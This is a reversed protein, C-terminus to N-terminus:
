TGANPQTPDAQIGGLHKCFSRCAAEPVFNDLFSSHCGIVKDYDTNEGDLPVKITGGCYDAGHYSKSVRPPLLHGSEEQNRDAVCHTSLQTCLIHPSSNSEEIGELIDTRPTQRNSSISFLVIQPKVWDLLDRAFNKPDGTEPNGGHHPFVLIDAELSLGAEHIEELGRYGIDGPFLAVPHGQDDIRVVVSLQNPTLTRDDAMGGEAALNLYSPPFLVKIDTESSSIYASEDLTVSSNVSLGSEYYSKKVASIVYKFFDTEQSKKPSPNIHLENVGISDDLLVDIVGGVHDQDAHSVLIHDIYSIGYYELHHLLTIKRGCDIVIKDSGTDLIASNGHGVDLISLSRSNM